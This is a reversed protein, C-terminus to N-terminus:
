CERVEVVEINCKRNGHDGGAAMEKLHVGVKMKVDKMEQIRGISHAPIDQEGKTRLM